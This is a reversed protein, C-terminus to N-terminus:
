RAAGSRHGRRSRPRGDGIRGGGDVALDIGPDLQGARQRHVKIPGAAPVFLVDGDDDVDMDIVVVQGCTGPRPPNSCVGTAASCTGTDHCVDLPTCVVPNGGTCVGAQCTDTRTCADGDVCGTGDAKAPNSCLGTAPACVGPVHCQDSATCVVPNGGACVGAQCADTQTCLNGDNCVAGNAKEPNSCIGSVRNCVGAVHCQDLATCTVTTGGGCVQGTCTTASTCADGDNCATGNAAGACPDLPLLLIRANKIFAETTASGSSTKYHITASHASQDFAMRRMSFLPVYNGITTGSVPRFDMDGQAANDVALRATVSAATNENGALASGLALYNVATNPLFPVSVKAAFATSSSSSVAESEAYGHNTGAPLLSSLKIATIATSRVAATTGSALTRLQIALTNSAQTVTVVRAVAFSRYMAEVSANYRPPRYQMTGQDVGNLTLRAEVSSATGREAADATALLLWSDGIASDFTTSKATSFSTSSSTTVCGVCM